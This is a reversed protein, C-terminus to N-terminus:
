VEEARNVATKISRILCKLEDDIQIELQKASKWRNIIKCKIRNKLTVQKLVRNSHNKISQSINEM